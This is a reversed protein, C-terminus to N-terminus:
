ALVVPLNNVALRHRLYINVLNIDSLIVYRLIEAVAPYQFVIIDHRLGYLYTLWVEVRYRFWFQGVEIVAAVTLYFLGQNSFCTLAAHYQCPICVAIRDVVELHHTAHLTLSGLAVPLHNAVGDVLHAILILGNRRQSGIFILHESHVVTFAYAKCLSLHLLALTLM